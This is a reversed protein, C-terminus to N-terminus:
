DVTEPAGGYTFDISDDEFPHDCGISDPTNGEWCYLEAGLGGPDLPSPDGGASIIHQVCALDGCRVGLEVQGADADKWTFVLNIVDSADGAVPAVVLVGERSKAFVARVFAGGNDGPVSANWVGVYPHPQFDSASVVAECGTSLLAGVIAACTLARM